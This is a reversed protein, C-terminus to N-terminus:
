SAQVEAPRLSPLIHHALVLLTQEQHRGMLKAVGEAQLVGLVGSRQHGGNVSVSFVESKGFIVDFADLLEVTLHSTM